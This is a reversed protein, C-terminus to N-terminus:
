IAELYYFNNEVIRFEPEGRPAVPARSASDTEPAPEVTAPLWSMQPDVLEPPSDNTPPIAVISKPALPEGAAEVEDIARWVAVLVLGSLLALGGLVLSRSM